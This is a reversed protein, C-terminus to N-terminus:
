NTRGIRSAWKRGAKLGAARGNRSGTSVGAKYISLDKVDDYIGVVDMFSQNFYNNFFTNFAEEYAGQVLRGGPNDVVVPNKTFVKEGNDDFSLVSARVPRIVVPLGNEMIRAKDYFPTSSGAKVTSSQRFSSNISLGSGSVEYHIDFLRANPNGTEYWEYVHHLMQPNQRASMDIFDKVMETAHEGLNKLITPKEIEVGDLFGETYRIVNQMKSIFQKDDFTISIM